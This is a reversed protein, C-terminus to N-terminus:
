LSNETDHDTEQEVDLEPIEEKELEDMFNTNRNEETLKFNQKKNIPNGSSNLFLYKGINKSNGPEYKFIYPKGLKKRAEIVLRREREPLIYDGICDIVFSQFITEDYLSLKNISFYYNRFLVIGNIYKYLIDNWGNDDDVRIKVLIILAHLINQDFSGINIKKNTDVTATKKNFTILDVNKYPLCRKNNSYM